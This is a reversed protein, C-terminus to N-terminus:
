RNHHSHCHRVGIGVPFQSSCRAHVVKHHTTLAGNKNVVIQGNFGYERMMMSDDIVGVLYMDVRTYGINM